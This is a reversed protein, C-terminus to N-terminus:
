EEQKKQEEKYWEIWKDADAGLDQKTRVKLLALIDAALKGGLEKKDDKMARILRGTTKLDKFKADIALLAAKRIPLELNQDYIKHERERKDACTSFVGATVPVTAAVLLAQVVAIWRKGQLAEVKKTLADLKDHLERLHAGDGSAARTGSRAAQDQDTTM